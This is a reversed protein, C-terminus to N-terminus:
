RVQSQCQFVVAVLQFFSGISNPRRVDGNRTSFGNNKWFLDDFDVFICNSCGSAYNDLDHTYIDGKRHANAVKSDMLYNLAYEKIFAGLAKNNKGSFSKEDVNANSNEVNKNKLVEEVENKLNEYLKGYMERSKRREDRYLIYAKAIEYYDLEMLVKEVANQIEEVGVEDKNIANEVRTVIEKTENFKLVKNVDKAAKSVAYVIKDSNYKEKERNNRKVVTKM